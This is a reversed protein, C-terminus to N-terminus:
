TAVSVAKRLTLRNRNGSRHYEVRDMFTRILYIGLGGVPRDELEGELDPLPHACPDFAPGDDTFVATLSRGDCALAVEAVHGPAGGLGHVVLNTLLEELVLALEDATAATLGCDACFGIAEDIIRSVSGLEAAIKLRRERM